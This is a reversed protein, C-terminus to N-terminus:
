PSWCRFAQTSGGYSVASFGPFREPPLAYAPFPPVDELLDLEDTM